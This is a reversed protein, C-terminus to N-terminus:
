PLIIKKGFVERGSFNWVTQAFTKCNDYALVVNDFQQIFFWYKNFDVMDKKM